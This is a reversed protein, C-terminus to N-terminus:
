LSDTYYIHTIQTAEATKKLGCPWRADRQLNTNDYGITIGCLIIAICFLKFKKYKIKSKSTNCFSRGANIDEVSGACLVVHNVQGRSRISVKPGPLHRSHQLTKVGSMALIKKFYGGVGWAAGGGGKGSM